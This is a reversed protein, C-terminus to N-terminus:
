KVVLKDVIKNNDQQIMIFYVGRNIDEVNIATISETLVVSKVCRGTLDIINLQANSGNVSEVFIESTAPNPFISFNSTMLEECGVGEPTTVNKIEHVWENAENKATAVVVYETEPTLDEFTIEQEGTYPTNDAQISEVIAEAGTEDFMAQTVIGVHYETTYENAVVTAKVTYADIAEVTLEVGAEGEPVIGEVDTFIRTLFLDWVQDSQWVYGLLLLSGDEQILMDRTQIDDCPIDLTMVGEAGFNDKPIGNEDTNFVYARSVNSSYNLAYYSGFIQGDHATEVTYCYNACAEGSFSEFFTFGNNQGFSQDITGNNLVRTIYTKYRPYNDGSNSQMGSHGGIIYAGDPQVAIDLAYENWEDIEYQLIGDESFSSDLVGNSTLRVLFARNIPMNGDLRAGGILIKDNEVIEITYGYSWLADDFPILLSGNNGFSPDPQGIANYRRVFLSDNYYGCVIPRNHSDVTIDEYVIDHGNEGIAYGNQGFNTNVFGNEDLSLIFSTNIDLDSNNPDYNFMHGAIFLTGNNSLVAGRGENMYILDNAQYLFYGNNGYTQDLTGDANHRSVYVAFNMGDYLTKGVTIIKGDEQTLLEFPYNAMNQGQTPAFLYTGNDGFNTDITGPDQSFGVFTLMCMLVLTFLKKM